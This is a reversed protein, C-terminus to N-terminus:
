IVVEVRWVSTIWWDEDGSTPSSVADISIGTKIGADVVPTNDFDSTVLEFNTNSELAGDESEDYTATAVVAEIDNNGTKEVRVAIDTSTNITACRLIIKHLTMKFPTIFGVRHDDMGSSEATGWWPIYVKATSITDYFNHLFVRYDIFKNTYELTNTRLTGDVYQNGDSSMYIKWLKGYKKRYLALQNNSKKEIAVQGDVMGHISPKGQFEISNQKTNELRRMDRDTLAM